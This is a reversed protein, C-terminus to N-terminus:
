GGAEREAQRAWDRMRRVSGLLGGSLSHLNWAPEQRHGPDRVPLPATIENLELALPEIQDLLVRIRPYPNGNM